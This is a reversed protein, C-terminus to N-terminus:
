QGDPSVGFEELESRVRDKAKQESALQAKSLYGKKNMKDAWEFRDRARQFEVRLAEIRKRREMAVWALLIAVGAIIVMSWLLTLRPRFVLKM